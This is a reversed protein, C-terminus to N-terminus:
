ASESRSSRSFEMIEAPSGLRGYRDYYNGWAEPSRPASGIPHISGNSRDVLVGNSGPVPPALSRSRDRHFAGIAFVFSREFVVAPGDTRVDIIGNSSRRTELYRDALERAQKEDMFPIM